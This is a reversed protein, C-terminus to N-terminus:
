IKILYDEHDIEEKIDEKKKSWKIISDCDNLNTAEYYDYDAKQIIWNKYIEMKIANFRM